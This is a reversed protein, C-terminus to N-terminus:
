RPRANERRSLQESLDFSDNLFESPRAPEILLSGELENIAEATSPIKLESVNSALSKMSEVGKGRPRSVEAVDM